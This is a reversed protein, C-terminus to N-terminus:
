LIPYAQELWERGRVQIAFTIEEQILLQRLRGRAQEKAVPHAIDITDHCHRCLPIINAHANRIKRLAEPQGLFWSEPVLHHRTIFGSRMCMRCLADQMKRATLKPSCLAESPLVFPRHEVYRKRGTTRTTRGLVKQVDEALRREYESEFASM